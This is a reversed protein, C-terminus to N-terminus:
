RRRDRERRDLRHPNESGGTPTGSSVCWGCNMSVGVFTIIPRWTFGCTLKHLVRDASHIESYQPGRCLSRLPQPQATRKRFLGSSEKLRPARMMTGKLAQPGGGETVVRRLNLILTCPYRTSRRFPHPLSPHSHPVIPHPNPFYIIEM